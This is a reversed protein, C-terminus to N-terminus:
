ARVDECAAASLLLLERRLNARAKPEWQMRGLATHFLYEQALFGELFARRGVCWQDDTIHPLEARIDLTNREYDPWPLALAALDADVVRAGAEDGPEPCHTITLLILRQVEEMERATLHGALLRRAVQASALEDDPTTNTHVADHCWFAIRDLDTACLEDLVELGHILHSEGHYHRHPERWRVLLDARVDDPLYSM